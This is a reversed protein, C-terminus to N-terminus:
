EVSREDDALGLAVREYRHLAYAVLVGVAVLLTANLWLLDVAALGVVVVAFLASGAGIVSRSRLSRIRNETGSEDRPTILPGLLVAVLGMEIFLLEVATVAQASIGLALVHGLAYSYVTPAFLWIVGFVLALLAGFLGGVFSFVVGTM